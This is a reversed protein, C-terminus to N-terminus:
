VNYKTSHTKDNANHLDTVLSFADHVSASTCIKRRNINNSRGLNALFLIINSSYQYTEKTHLAPVTWCLRYLESLGPASGPPPPPPPFFELPPPPAIRFWLVNWSIVINGPNETVAGQANLQNKSPFAFLTSMEITPVFPFNKRIFAWPTSRVIPATISIGKFVNGKFM